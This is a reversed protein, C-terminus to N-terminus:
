RPQECMQSRSIEVAHKINLILFAIDKNPLRSFSLLHALVYSVAKIRIMEDMDDVILFEKIDNAYEQAKDEANYIDALTDNNTYITIM